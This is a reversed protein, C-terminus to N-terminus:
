TSLKLILCQKKINMLCEWFLSFFKEVVFSFVASKACVFCTNAISGRGRRGGCVCMFNVYFSFSHFMSPAFRLCPHFFVTTSSSKPFHAFKLNQKECVQTEFKHENKMFWASFFNILKLQLIYFLLHFLFFMQM